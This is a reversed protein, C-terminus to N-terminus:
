NNKNKLENKLVYMSKVVLMNNSDKIRFYQNENLIKLGLDTFKNTNHVLIIEPLQTEKGSPMDALYVANTIGYELVNITENDLQALESKSYSKLLDSSYKQATSIFCLSIFTFLIIIRSMNSKKNHGSIYNFLQM